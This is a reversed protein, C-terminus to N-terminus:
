AGGQGRKYAVAGASAIAAIATVIGFGPSGDSGGFFGGVAGSDITVSDVLTDDATVIVRYDTGDELGDAEVYETDTTNGPDAAISSSVVTNATATVSLITDNSTLTDSTHSSLDVTGDDSINASSVTVTTNSQDLEVDFTAAIPVATANFEATTGNLTTASLHSSTVDDGDISYAGESYISVDATDSTTASDNWAVSVTFNSSNDFTATTNAMETTAATGVAAMGVLLVTLVALGIVTQTTNSFNM